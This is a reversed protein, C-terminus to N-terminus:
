DPIPWEEVGVRKEWADYAAKLERVKDPYQKAVNHMETRDNPINYLQWREGHAAVLKWDGIRVARNGEHEWCLPAPRSITAGGEIAPLLNIGEEPWVTHGHFSAPYGAGAAALVTPMLDIVDGVQDHQIQGAETVVGPWRVVFPTSIGGEETFHKFRRLPTNSANAWAPGYSQYVTEPGPWLNSVNGVAIARGDRTHENIDYWGPQVQEQCAGNDSLFIVMTNDDIGRDRLEAMIRGVGRDMIEVMAAYVAMRRAQWAKAPATVWPGVKSDGDNLSTLFARPSLGWKEECLGMAVQRDYRQQRIVDWGVNYVDRYRDIDAEPAQMPWHPATYAVYLFFPRTADSSFGDILQVAHDTIFDTYYFDPKDPRIKQENHVLSYPDYYDEVGAITGWHEEFGRNCPWDVDSPSIPADVKFDLLDQARAHPLAAITLHVLHWKGVMGTHYGADRLVEAMTVCHDSDLEGEYQPKKGLKQNMAGIGAQHPYLGTMISARTPCCRAMNYFQAFRLGEAAMKDINPTHIEAGYCGLDAFGMDDALIIIINPRSAASAKGAAGCIVCFGALLCLLVGRTFKVRAHSSDKKM